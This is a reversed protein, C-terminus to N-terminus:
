SNTSPRSSWRCIPRSPGRSSRTLRNKPAFDGGGREAPERTGRSSGLRASPGGYKLDPGTGKHRRLKPKGHEERYRLSARHPLQKNGCQDCPRNNREFRFSLFTRSTRSQSRHRSGDNQSRHARHRARQNSIGCSGCDRMRPSNPMGCRAGAGPTYCLGAGCSLFSSGRYRRQWHGFRGFRDCSFGRRRNGFRGFDNGCFGCRRNLVKFLFRQRTFPLRLSWAPRRARRCGETSDLIPATAQAM